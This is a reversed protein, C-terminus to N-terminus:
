IIKFNKRKYKKGYFCKLAKGTDYSNQHQKCLAKGTTKKKYCGDVACTNTFIIKM